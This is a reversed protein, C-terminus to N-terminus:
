IKSEINHIASRLFDGNRIKKSIDIANQRMRLIDTASMSAIINELDNLSRITIGIRYQEVFSALASDKWIIIPLGMSLYMSFKHPSIYRLYEGMSGACTDIDEGDWVLGFDSDIHEHLENPHFCGIYEVGRNLVVKDVGVGFLQLRISSFVLKSIFKSKGLNGAFAITRVHDTNTRVSDVKYDAIYDFTGLIEIHHNLTRSEVWKKMAATHVIVYDAEKIPTMDTESACRIGDLDHVLVIVKCNRRHAIKIQWNNLNVPFQVFVIGRYPIRFYALVNSMITWLNGLIRSDFQRIPLGVNKYGCSKIIKEADIKAKSSATYPSRYNKSIYVKKMNM